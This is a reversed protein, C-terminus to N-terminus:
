LFLCVNEEMLADRVRHRLDFRYFEIQQRWSATMRWQGEWQAEAPPHYCATNIYVERKRTEEKLKRPPQATGLVPYTEVTDGLPEIKTERRELPPALM